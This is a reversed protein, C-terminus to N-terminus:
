YKDLECELDSLLKNIEVVVSDENNWFISPLLIDAEMGPLWENIFDELEISVAIYSSWENIACAEAFDKRPWFPIMKRNKEDISIAWGDNYLGWVEEFDVVKKIFYEYRKEATSIILSNYENYGMIRGEEM